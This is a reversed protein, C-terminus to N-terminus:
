PPRTIELVKAIVFYLTTAIASLLAVMPLWQWPDPDGSGEPRPDRGIQQDGNKESFFLRRTLKEM